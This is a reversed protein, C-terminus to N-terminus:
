YCASAASVCYFFGVFLVSVSYDFPLEVVGSTFSRPIAVSEVEVETLVISCVVIVM